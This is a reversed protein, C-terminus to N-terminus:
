EGGAMVSAELPPGEHAEVDNRHLGDGRGARIVTVLSLICTQPDPASGLTAVACTAAGPRAGVVGSRNLPEQVPFLPTPNVVVDRIHARRVKRVRLSADSASGQLLVVIM